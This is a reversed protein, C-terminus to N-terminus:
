ADQAEVPEYKKAFYIESVPWHDTLDGAARVIWHNIPLLVCGQIGNKGAYMKASEPCSMGPVVIGEPCFKEIEDFNDGTWQIAEVESPKSRYRM